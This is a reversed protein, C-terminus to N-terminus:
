NQTIRDYMDLDHGYEQSYRLPPFSDEQQHYLGNECIKKVQQYSYAGYHLARRCAADIVENGFRKRLGLIGRTMPTWHTPVQELLVLFMRAVHPGIATMDRQYEERAVLRKGEPRHEQMSVYMGIDPSILHSAIQVQDHYVRLVTGNSELRVQSGAYRAPVSYFNQRYSIHAMRNVRRGTVETIQYRLSPLAGLAGREVSQFVSAPVRRTTGHTRKNCVEENWVRLACVLEEYSEGEFGKLFNNKVYKIASEVKGKDQPRRPRCAIGACGYYALFSAYQEQLLPEYLDPTIVGSKLNDLKVSCPVGGFYEFARIHCDLFEQVRQSTVLRHYSYRSHSLVMAFVWVKVPRGNRRFQGLYGFDVQCEEGPDCHLPVYVERKRLREVSRAVSPYSITLGHREVLKRHILVVSLGSEHYDSIEKEYEDLVKFRVQEAPGQTGDGLARAIRSVTKRCMSLDRAIERQSKGQALLTKITHYMAVKYMADPTKNGSLNIFYM